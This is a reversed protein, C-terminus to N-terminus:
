DSSHLLTTEKNRSLVFDGLSRRGTRRVLVVVLIWPGQTSGGSGDTKSTSM